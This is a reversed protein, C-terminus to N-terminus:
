NEGRQLKTKRFYVFFSAVICLWIQVVMIYYLFGMLLRGLYSEKLIGTSKYFLSKVPKFFYRYKYSSRKGSPPKYEIDPSVPSQRPTQTPRTEVPKTEVPSQKPTRVVPAGVPTEQKPAVPRVPSPKEVKTETTQPRPAVSREGPVAAAPPRQREVPQPQSTPVRREPPRSEAAKQTEQSPPTAPKAGQSSGENMTKMRDAVIKRYAQLAENAEDEMGLRKYALWLREFAQAYEPKIRIVMNFAKIADEFNGQRFYVSGMGFYAEAHDPDIEIVKKLLELSEDVKGVRYLNYAEMYQKNADGYRDAFLIQRHHANIIILALFVILYKKM